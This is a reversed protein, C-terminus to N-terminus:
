NTYETKWLQNEILWQKVNSPTFIAEETWELVSHVVINTGNKSLLAFAPYHSFGLRSKLASPLIGVDIQDLDVYYIQDFRQTNASSVLINLVEQNTYNCDADDEVCFFYAKPNSELHNLIDEYAVKTENLQNFPTSSSFKPDFYQYTLWLVLALLALGIFIWQYSKKSLNMFMM